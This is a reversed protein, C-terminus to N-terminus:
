PAPPPTFIATLAASVEDMSPCYTEVLGTNAGPLQRVLFGGSAVPIVQAEHGLLPDTNEIPPM